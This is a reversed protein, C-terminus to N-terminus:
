PITLSKCEFRNRRQRQQGDIISDGLKTLQNYTFIPLAGRSRPSEFSNIRGRDIVVVALTNIFFMSLEGIFVMRLGSINRRFRLQPRLRFAVWHALQMVIVVITVSCLGKLRRRGNGPLAAAPLYFEM